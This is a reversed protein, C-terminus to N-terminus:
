ARLKKREATKGGEDRHREAAHVSEAALLLEDIQHAELKVNRLISRVNAPAQASLGTEGSLAEAAFAIAGLPERL